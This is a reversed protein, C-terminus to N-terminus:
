REVGQCWLVATCVVLAVCLIGVLWPALLRGSDCEADLRHEGDCELCHGHPADQAPLMPDDDPFQAQCNM